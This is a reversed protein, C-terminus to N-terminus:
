KSGWWLQTSGSHKDGHPNEDAPAIPGAAIARSTSTSRGRQCSIPTPRCLWPRSASPQGHIAQEDVSWDDLRMAHGSKPTFRVDKLSSWQDAGLGAFSLIAPALIKGPVQSIAVTRGVSAHPAMELAPLSLPSLLRIGASRVLPPFRIEASRVLSPLRIGASRVLPPAMEPAELRGKRRSHSGTRLHAEQSVSRYGRSLSTFLWQDGSVAGRCM